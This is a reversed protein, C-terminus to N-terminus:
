NNADNKSKILQAILENWHAWRGKWTCYIAMAEKRTQQYCWGRREEGEHLERAHAWEGMEAAEWM